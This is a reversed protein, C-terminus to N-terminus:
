PSIHLHVACDKAFCPWNENVQQWGNLRRKELCRKVTEQEFITKDVDTTEVTLLVLHDLQNALEDGILEHSIINAMSMDMPALAVGGSLNMVQDNIEEMLRHALYAKHLLGRLGKFSTIIDPPNIFYTCALDLFPKVYSQLQIENALAELAKTHEPVAAVYDEVFCTLAQVPSSSSIAIASHLSNLNEQIYVPMTHEQREEKQAASINKKLVSLTPDMVVIDILCIKFHCRDERYREIM